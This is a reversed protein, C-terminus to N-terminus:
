ADYRGGKLPDPAKQPVWILLMLCDIGELRGLPTGLRTSLIDAMQHAIKLGALNRVPLGVYMGASLAIAATDLDM